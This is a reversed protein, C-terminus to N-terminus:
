REDQNRQKHDIEAALEVSSLAQDLRRLAQKAEFVVRDTHRRDGFIIRRLHWWRM